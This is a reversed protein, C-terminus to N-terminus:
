EVTARLQVGTFAKAGHVAVHLEGPAPADIVVIGNNGPRVSSVDHLVPSAHGGRRVFLDADGSGGYSRLTLRTAGDPVNVVYHRSQAQKAYIHMKPGSLGLSTGLGGNLNIVALGDLLDRAREATPEALDELRPLDELPELVDGPLRGAQPDDLQELRRRAAGEGLQQQRAHQHDRRVEGLGPRQAAGARRVVDPRQGSGQPLEPGRHHHDGAPVPLLRDVHEIVPRLEDLVRDYFALGARNASGKGTPQIRPWAFSFRYSDVGLQKMLAVDQPMRHYHDCAIKPSHDEVVAGPQQM